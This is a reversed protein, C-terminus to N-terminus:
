VLLDTNQAEDTACACAVMDFVVTDTPSMMAATQFLVESGMEVPVKRSGRCLPCCEARRYFKYRLGDYADIEAISFSGDLDREIRQMTTYSSEPRHGGAALSLARLGADLSRDYDGTPPWAHQVLYGPLVLSDGFRMKLIATGLSFRYQFADVSAIDHRSIHFLASM